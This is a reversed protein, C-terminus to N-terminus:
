SLTKKFEEQNRVKSLVVEYSIVGHEYLNKLSKDMSVMGLEAGTAIVNHLQGIKGEKILNRVATNAVMVEVALARGKEGIVPLLMQCVIGQLCNSLQSRVQHQQHPPFIDLIRDITHAADSTHLTSLVLHGTEAATLATSVTELDRMEGICIVNPDQRLAHILADYFSRTDSEVERQIVISRKHTHVFEIPDEITIIRARKERNILDIMLNLTTTKGMGTAGTVLVLGNPKLALEEVVPPLHLEEFTKLELPVIRFAGGMTGKDMYVSARFRGLGPDSLSFELDWERLFCARQEETLIEFLLARTEDPMLRDHDLFVIEGGVRVSPPIGAVIHLDSAERDLAMKIFKKIRM